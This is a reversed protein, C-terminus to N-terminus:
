FPLDDDEPERNEDILINKSQKNLFIGAKYQEDWVSISICEKNRADEIETIYMWVSDEMPPPANVFKDIRGISIKNGTKYDISQNVKLIQGGLDVETKDKNLRIM